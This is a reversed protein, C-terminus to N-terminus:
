DCKVTDNDTVELLGWKTDKKLCVYAKGSMSNLIVLDDFVFDFLRKKYEASGMGFVESIGFIEWTRNKTQKAIMSALCGDHCCIMKEM